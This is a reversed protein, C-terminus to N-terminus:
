ILENAYSSFFRQNTLADYFKYISQINDYKNAIRFFAFLVDFFFCIDDFFCSVHNQIFFFLKFYTKYFRDFVIFLTFQTHTPDTIQDIFRNHRINSFLSTTWHQCINTYSCMISCVCVFLNVWLFSPSIKHTHYVISKYNKTVNWPICFQFKHYLSVALSILSFLKSFFFIWKTVSFM